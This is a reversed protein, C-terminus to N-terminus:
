PWVADVRPSMSPTGYTANRQRRLGLPAEAKGKLVTDLRNSGGKEPPIRNQHTICFQLSSEPYKEKKPSNAANTSEAVPNKEETRLLKALAKANRRTASIGVYRQYNFVTPVIQM